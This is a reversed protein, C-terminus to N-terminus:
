GVVAAAAKISGRSVELIGHPPLPSPKGNRVAEMFAAACRVQGKDLTWHNAPIEDANITMVFCKPETLTDVLSKMETVQPSLLRKFGVMILQDPFSTMPQEIEDLEGGTLCLPKEFFIHKGVSLVAVVQGAHGDHRTSIVVADVAADESAASVDAGSEVFEYIRGFNDIPM